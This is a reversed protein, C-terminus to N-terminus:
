SVTIVVNGKKHGTDVYRHAEPLQELPYCRDIVARLKGAEYLEKIYTLNEQKQQLGTAAFKAKKEKSRSTWLMDLVNRLTPVTTLYVGQATLARKCQSYSRKGVADFIVDYTGSKTFDAKTYDIVRDAGLAKVMEINTPGCVATVEAGFYKALQIAYVGVAGSAGNILVKQGRQLHAHDRLFSLSTLTGDTIGVADEYSMHSPMKAMINQEPLCLYEAYAGFNPSIGFIQDGIKFATVDKGVTEIEGAFETGFIPYKPKRLGFMLKVIFPDGKRFACDAPGASTAHIKILVENDKPTPKAIEQFQLVDPSGYATCVVAKM